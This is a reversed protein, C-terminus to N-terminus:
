LLDKAYVLFLASLTPVVPAGHNREGLGMRTARCYRRGSVPNSGLALCQSLSNEPIREDVRVVFRPHSAIRVKAKHASLHVTCM